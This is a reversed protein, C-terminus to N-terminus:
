HIDYVHVERKGQRVLEIAEGDMIGLVWCTGIHLHHDDEKRLVTPTGLRLPVVVTDGVSICKPGLGIYGSETEFAHFYEVIAATHLMHPKPDCELCFRIFEQDATTHDSPDNDTETDIVHCNFWELLGMMEKIDLGYERLFARSEESKGLFLLFAFLNHRFHEHDPFGICDRDLLLARLIAQPISVGTVYPRHADTQTLYRMFLRPFDETCDISIVTKINDSYIAPLRHHDGEVEPEKWTSNEHPTLLGATGDPLRQGRRRSWNPVWSPLNHEDLYQDGTDFIVDGFLQPLALTTFEIYIQRVSKTYDAKIPTNMFGLSSYIIDRLDLANFGRM